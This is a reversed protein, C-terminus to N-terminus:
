AATAQEGTELRQQCDVCTTTEPLAELRARPIEAGCRECVGYTGEAMRDLAGSLRNIREAVRERQAVGVDQRESAQARDGEDAGGSTAGRPATEELAPAVGLERLRDVLAARERLLRTKMEETWQARTSM